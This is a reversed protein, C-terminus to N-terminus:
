KSEVKRSNKGPISLRRMYVHLTERCVGLEKAIVRLPDRSNFYREKFKNIQKENLKQAKGSYRGKKKAEAVGERIAELIHARQLEAVAGFITLLFKAEADNKGNFVLNQQVFRVVIKRKILDDVLECLNKANRALRDISHIFLEDDERLYDLMLQLQPRNLDKGSAYDIFKKDLELGELQRDPNQEYTSVRIYGVRKGSM